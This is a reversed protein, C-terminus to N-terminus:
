LREVRAIAKKIEDRALALSVAAASLARTTEATQMSTPTALATSVERRLDDLLAVLLGTNLLWGRHAAANDAISM